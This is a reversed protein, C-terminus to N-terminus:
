TATKLSVAGLPEDKGDLVSYFQVALPDVSTQLLEHVGSEDDDDSADSGECSAGGVGGVAGEAAASAATGESCDDSSNSDGATLDITAEGEAPRAASSSSVVAGDAAGWGGPPGGGGASRRARKGAGAQAETPAAAPRARSPAAAAGVAPLPEEGRERCFAEFQQQVMGLLNHALGRAIKLRHDPPHTGNRTSCRLLLAPPCWGEAGDCGGVVSVYAEAAPLAGAAADSIHQLYADHPGRLRSLADFDRHYPVSLPLTETVFEPGPDDDKEKGMMPRRGAPRGSRTAAHSAPQLGPLDLHRTDCDAAASKLICSHAHPHQSRASAEFPSRPQLLSDSCARSSVAYLMPWYRVHVATLLLNRVFFTFRAFRPFRLWGQRLPSCKAASGPSGLTAAFSFTLWAATKEAIYTAM